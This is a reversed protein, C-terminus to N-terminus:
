NVDIFIKNIKREVQLRTQPNKKYINLLKFNTNGITFM